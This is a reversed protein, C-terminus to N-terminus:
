CGRFREGAPTLGLYRPLSCWMAWMLTASKVADRIEDSNGIAAEIKRSICSTRDLAVGGFGRILFPERHHALKAACGIWPQGAELAFLRGAGSFPLASGALGSRDNNCYRFITLLM